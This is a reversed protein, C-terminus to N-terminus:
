KLGNIIKGKQIKTIIFLSIFKLKILILIKSFLINLVLLKCFKLKLNDNLYLWILVIIIM